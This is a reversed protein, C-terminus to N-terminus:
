LMSLLGRLRVLSDQRHAKSSRKLQNRVRTNATSVQSDGQSQSQLLIADLDRSASSSPGGASRTSLTEQSALSLRRKTGGFSFLKRNCKECEADYHFSKRRNIHVKVKHAHHYHHCAPCSCHLHADADYSVLSLADADYSVRSIITSSRPLQGPQPENSSM